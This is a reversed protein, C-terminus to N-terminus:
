SSLQLRKLTEEAEVADMKQLAYGVHIVLYDGEAVPSVLTTDVPTEVGGLEVVARDESEVRVVRAPVALCM